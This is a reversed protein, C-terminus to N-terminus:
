SATVLNGIPLARWTPEKSSSKAVASTTVKCTGSTGDVRLKKVLSCNAFIFSPAIKKFAARPVHTTISSKASAIM